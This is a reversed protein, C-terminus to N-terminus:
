SQIPFRRNSILRLKNNKELYVRLREEELNWEALVFLKIFRRPLPVVDNAVVIQGKGPRKDSEAVQRLFYVKPTFSLTQKELTPPQYGTYIMSARNFAGLQRDVDLVSEFRRRKWFNKSFVSNNGEISAQSFPKRPVSFIPTVQEDLFFKMVRSLRRVARYSGATAACNDVKVFSPKEFDRFFRRTYAILQESTQSEVRAFYRLKPPQKCAFGIFHLPARHGVLFRQLFDIEVVRGGLGHQLTHAPYCLYRAAGKKKKGKAGAEPNNRLLILSITRLSPAPPGHRLLWERQIATPGVYFSAADKELEERISVIRRQAEEDWKRGKGMPWGRGDKTVDQDPCQTWKRVFNASVKLERAIRKKSYGEVSYLRNVRERWAPSKKEVRERKRTELSITGSCRGKGRQNRSM